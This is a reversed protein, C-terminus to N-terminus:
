GLKEELAIKSSRLTHELMGAWARESVPRTLYCAGNVRAAMELDGGGEDGVVTIPCRSWRHRMWNLTRGVKIPDCSGAVIILSIRGTPANLM